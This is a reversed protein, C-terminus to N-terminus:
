IIGSSGACGGVNNYYHDWDYGIHQLLEFVSCPLKSRVGESDSSRQDGEQLVGAAFGCGCCTM